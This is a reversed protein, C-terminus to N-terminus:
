MLFVAPTDKADKAKAVCRQSDKAKNLCRQPDKAKLDPRQYMVSVDKSICTKSSSRQHTKSGFLDKMSMLDKIVTNLCTSWDHNM